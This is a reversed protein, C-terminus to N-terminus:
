TTALREYKKMLRIFDQAFQQENYTTLKTDGIYYNNITQNGTMGAPSSISSPINSTSVSASISATRSSLYNSVDEWGSKLGKYLGGMIAEGNTVLLKADVPLPGKLQPIQSTIEGFWGSVTGWASKLGDGLGNIISTGADWLLSGVDGLADLIQQPLNSFFDIVSGVMSNIGDLLGGLLSVGASLMSGVFSIILDICALILNGLAPILAGLIVPLADVLAMFLQIATNLILPIWTPLNEAFMNIVMALGNILAPLIVPLAEVLGMFLTVAAQILTPIFTEISNCLMRLVIMLENILSTILGPLATAIGMVLQPLLQLVASLLGNFVSGIAALLDPANAQIVSGLQELIGSIDNKLLDGMSTLIQTIRPIINSLYTVVSDLLKQTSEGVNANEDGLSTLWNQYAAKASNASGEITTAAEKATTGTIDMETQIAHIAETVDAFSSIDYHQGTLKEADALLREMEEKTGGYGLKLNDLMTYNQKAFGQYANQIDQINTGMKNANDSMDIVAQNGIEAAKATDGGLSSILSASFSTVTSMYENASMGATQYAQQAYGEVTSGSDKFLTEVGGTLQEFSSYADLSAQAVKAVGTAIVALGAAAAAGAVKVASGFKAFGVGMSDTSQKSTSEAKKTENSVSQLEKKAATGDAKIGIRLTGLDLM